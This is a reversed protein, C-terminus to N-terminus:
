KTVLKPYMLLQIDRWTVKTIDLSTLQRQLNAHSVYDYDQQRWQAGFNFGEGATQRMDENDIGLHFVLQSVEPARMQSLMQDYKESWQKATTKKDASTLIYYNDIAQENESLLAMYSPTSAIFNLPLVVPIKYVRGMKLYLAFLQENQFLSGMHSDLHSPKIGSEIAREIQARFEIEVEAIKAHQAFDASTAYFNGQKNLLSTIKSNEAAGAWKINQWEATMTIHLGLDYQPNEKAFLAIDEFKPAPVMISASNIYGKNFANIAALNTSQNLGLDDAHVILLKDTQKYGLKDILLNQAFVVHQVTCFTLTFITIFSRLPKLM